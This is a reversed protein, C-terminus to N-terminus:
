PRQAWFSRAGVVIAARVARRGSVSCPNGRGAAGRAQRHGAPLALAAPEGEGSNARGRPFVTERVRTRVTVSARHPQVRSASRPNAGSARLVCVRVSTTNMQFAQSPAVLLQGAWGAFREGDRCPRGARAHGQRNPARGSPQGSHSPGRGAPTETRGDRVVLPFPLRHPVAGVRCARAPHPDGQLDQLGLDWAKVPQECGPSPRGRDESSM